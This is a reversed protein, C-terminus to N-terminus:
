IPACYPSWTPTAATLNRGMCGVMAVVKQGTKLLEQPDFKVLGVCEIGTIEAVDGWTGQRFYIEAHNLGFAKV